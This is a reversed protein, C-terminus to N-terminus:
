IELMDGFMIDTEPLRAADLAGAPTFTLEGFYVKNKIAYFDARVFPFPASLAEAAKFIEDICEPKELYFDEPANKGDRNIRCLEWNKNFFYFKPHGKERGVCLMLYEARGNFCYVKYDQPLFGVGDDLYKECVIRKPAYKYQMESYPLWIKRKGWKNLKKVTKPIDLKSKDDCIINMGAGFNWKLAFKDPLEDWPIEDASKYVGHLENLIEGYGCEVIYDRVAYKDACKIVLPNKIYNNLKLWLNKENLTRPNKLDLKRKFAQRYRMKTNLTPSIVTLTSFFFSLVPNIISMCFSNNKIKEKLSM